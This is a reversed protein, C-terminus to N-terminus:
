TEPTQYESYTCPLLYAARRYFRTLIGRRKRHMTANNKIVSVIKATISANAEGVAGTTGLTNTRTPFLAVVETTLTVAPSRRGFVTNEDSASGSVSYGVEMRM